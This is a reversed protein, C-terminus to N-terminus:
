YAFSKGKLLFSIFGPDFQLALLSLGFAFIKSKISNISANVVFVAKPFIRNFFFLLKICYNVM